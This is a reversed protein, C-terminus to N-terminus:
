DDNEQLQRMFSDKRAISEPSPDGNWRDFASIMDGYSGTTLSSNYDFGEYCSCGGDDGYYWQYDKKVAIFEDTQYYLDEVEVQAVLQYGHKQAEDRELKNLM